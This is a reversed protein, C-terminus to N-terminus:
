GASPGPEGVPSHLPLSGAKAPLLQSTGKRKRQGHLLAMKYLGRATALVPDDPVTIRGGFRASLGRRLMCAGGGVVIVTTFRRFAQGWRKEIFSLVEREWVPLAASLDLRGARLQADLEGLAYLGSPDMLELLRRVGSTRGATFREEPAGGRAVMLEVTNMGISLVGIERDSQSRRAPIFAGQDDLLYDFLAGAPQSTIKISDFAILRDLGDAQWEHKGLLWARVADATSEDAASLAELPLGIVASLSSSLAGRELEYSTLGGLILALLGPSGGFRDHDLDEDLPRGWEHASAGAFFAGNHTKIRLPPKRQSLGAQRGTSWGQDIALFAPLQIGGTPGYIKIAGAGPDIGLVGTPESM